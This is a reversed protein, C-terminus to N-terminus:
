LQQFAESILAGGVATSVAALPAGAGATKVLLDAGLAWNVAVIAAGGVGNIIRRKWRWERQAEQARKIEDWRAQKLTIVHDCTEEKRVRLAELVREPVLADEEFNIGARDLEARANDGDAVYHAADENVGAVILLQREIRMFDRLETMVDRVQEKNELWENRSDDLFQRFDSNYESNYLLKIFTNCALQAARIRYDRAREPYADGEADANSLLSYIQNTNDVLFRYLFRYKM